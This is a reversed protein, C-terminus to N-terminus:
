VQNEIESIAESPSANGYIVRLIGPLYRDMMLVNTYVLQEMLAPSLRDGEVGISTKYRIEGDGWDLEFNGIILGCNARTLFEAVALRIDEPVRIPCMSYFVFQQHEESAEAFCAWQGNEGQFGMSLVEQGELQAFPWDNIEFFHVMTESIEAM